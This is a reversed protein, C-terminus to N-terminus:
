ESAPFLKIIRGVLFAVIIIVPALEIPVLLLLLIITLLPKELIFTLSAAIVVIANIRVDGPLMM